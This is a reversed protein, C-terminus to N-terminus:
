DTSKSSSVKTLSTTRWEDRTTIPPYVVANLSNARSSNPLIYNNSNIITTIPTNNNSSSIIPIIIRRRLRNRHKLSTILSLSIIIITKARSLPNM